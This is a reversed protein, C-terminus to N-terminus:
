LADAETAGGRFYHEGVRVDGPTIHHRGPARPVVIHGRREPGANTVTLFLRDTLVDLEKIIAPSAVDHLEDKLKRPQTKLDCHESLFVIDDNYKEAMGELKTPEDNCFGCCSRKVQIKHLYAVPSYPGSEAMVIDYNSGATMSKDRHPLAPAVWVWPHAVRTLAALFRHESREGWADSVTDYSLPQNNKECDKLFLTIFDADEVAQQHTQRQYTTLKNLDDRYLVANSLRLLHRAASRRGAVSLSTVEEPAMQALPKLNTRVKRLITEAKPIQGRVM